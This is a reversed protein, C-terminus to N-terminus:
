ISEFMASSILKGMLFRSHFFTEETKVWNFGTTGASSFVGKFTPHEFKSITTQTVDDLSIETRKNVNKNIWSINKNQPTGM